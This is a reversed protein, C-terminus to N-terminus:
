LESGIRDLTTEKMSEEAELTVANRDREKKIKCAGIRSTGIYVVFGAAATSRAKFGFIPQAM